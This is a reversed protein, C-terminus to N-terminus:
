DKEEFVGEITRGHNNHKEFAEANPKHRQTSFNQEETFSQTQNNQGTYVQTIGASIFRKAVLLRIQPVMLVFGITDNLFGPTLLLGGAFLLQAAAAMEIAPVQGRAMMNQIKHWSQLGQQKLLHVGIIATIVVIFLTPGLGIQDGVSIFIMIEIIPVFIFFLVLLRFM